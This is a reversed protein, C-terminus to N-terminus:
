SLSASALLARFFLNYGAEGRKKANFGAEAQKRARLNMCATASSGQVCTHDTSRPSPPYVQVFDYFVDKGLTLNVPVVDLGEYFALFKLATSNYLSMNYPLDDFSRVFSECTELPGAEDVTLLPTVM